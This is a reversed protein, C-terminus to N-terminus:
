DIIEKVVSSVYYKDEKGRGMGGSEKIILNLQILNKIRGWLTKKHIKTLSSLQVLTYREKEQMARLIDKNKEGISKILVTDIGKITEIMNSRNIKNGHEIIAGFCYRFTERLNGRTKELLVKLVNDPFHIPTTGDKVFTKMRGDVFERLRSITEMGPIDITLDFVKQTLVVNGLSLHTYNGTTLFVLHGPLGDVITKLIDRYTKEELKDLNDSIIVLPKVETIIRTSEDFIEIAQQLYPQVFLEVEEAEEKEGVVRIAFELLVAGIKTSIEPKIGKGRKKRRGVIKSEQLSKGIKKKIKADQEVIGELGRIMQNYFDEKSQQHLFDTKIVVFNSEEAYGEIINLLSTKGLGTSGFLIYKGKKTVICKELSDKEKARDVFGKLSSNIPELFFPNGTFGLKELWDM